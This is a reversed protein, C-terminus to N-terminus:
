DETTMSECLAANRFEPIQKAIRYHNRGMAGLGVIAIRM